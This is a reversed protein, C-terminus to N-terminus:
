LGAPAAIRQVHAVLDPLYDNNLAAVRFREESGRAIPTFSHDFLLPQASVAQPLHAPGAASTGGRPYPDSASLAALSTPANPGSLMEHSLRPILTLCLFIYRNYELGFTSLPPQAIEEDILRRLDSLTANGDVCLCCLDSATGAAEATPGHTSPVVRVVVYLTETSGPMLVAAPLGSTMRPPLTGTLCLPPPAAGVTSGHQSISMALPSSLADMGLCFAPGPLAAPAAPQAHTDAARSSGSSALSQLLHSGGPPGPRAIPVSSFNQAMHPSMGAGANGALHHGALGISATQRSELTTAEQQARRAVADHQAYWGTPTADACPQAQTFPPNAAAFTQASQTTERQAPRTSDRHSQAVLRRHEAALAASAQPTHQLPVSHSAAPSSFYGSARLDTPTGSSPTNIGTASFSVAHATATTHSAPSLSAPVTPAAVESAPLIPFPRSSDRVAPEHCCEVIVNFYNGIKTHPAVNWSYSHISQGSTCLVRTALDCVFAIQTESLCEFLKINVREVYASHWVVEVTQGICVIDSNDPKTVQIVPTGITGVPAPTQQPHPVTTALGQLGSAAAPAPALVTPAFTLPQEPVATPIPPVSALMDTIFNNVSKVSAEYFHWNVTAMNNSTIAERVERHNLRGADEICTRAYADEVVPIVARDTSLASVFEMRCFDDEKNFRDSNLYASTLLPMFVPTQRAYFRLRESFKGGVLCNRDLFVRRGSAELSTCLSHAFASGDERRYSLFIDHGDPHKWCKYQHQQQQQQQQQGATVPHTALAGQALGIPQGLAPQPDHQDVVEIDQWQVPYEFEASEGTAPKWLVRVPPDFRTWGLFTGRMGSTPRKGTFNAAYPQSLPAVHMSRLAVQVASGDSHRCDSLAILRDRLHRKYVDVSHPSALVPFPQEQSRPQVVAESAPLISFPPSQETANGGVEDIQIKYYNGPAIDHPILWDFERVNLIAGTVLAVSKLFIPTPKGNVNRVEREFDGQCLRICVPRHRMRGSQRWRIKVMGGPYLGPSDDNPEHVNILGRDRAGVVVVGQFDPLPCNSAYPQITVADPGQDANAALDMVFSEIHELGTPLRTIVFQQDREGEKFGLSDLVQLGSPSLSSSHPADSVL